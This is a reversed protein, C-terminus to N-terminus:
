LGGVEFETILLDLESWFSIAGKDDCFFDERCHILDLQGREPPNV